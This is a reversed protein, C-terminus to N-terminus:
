LATPRHRSGGDVGLVVGSVFGAGILYGIAEAVDEARGVRGVPTARAYNEFTQQRTEADMWDWWPTDIIGPSVANVRAPALEVALVPVMAEVAANVAALGATGPRAAGASGATVFTLSGDARLVKLAAQAAITQAILKGEGASRLADATLDRFAGAASHGTVTVVVHDVAGLGAFFAHMAEEDRADVAEGSAGAGLREVVAALKAADRGTVVVERGAALQGQAVALGIGSTGGIMVVRETM